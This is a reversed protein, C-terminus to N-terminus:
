SFYHWRPIVRNGAGLHCRMVTQVGTVPFGIVEDGRQVFQACIHYESM